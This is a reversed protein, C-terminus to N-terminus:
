NEVQILVDAGFYTIGSWEALGYNEWGMWIAKVGAIGLNANAPLQLKARVSTDGTSSLYGDLADQATRESESSVMLRLRFNLRDRTGVLTKPEANEPVAVLCPPSIEGRITDLSRLGTIAAGVTQLGDRIASITAM